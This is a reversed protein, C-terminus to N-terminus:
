PSTALKSEADRLRKRVDVERFEPKISQVADWLPVIEKWLTVAEDYKNQKEYENALYVLVGLLSVQSNALTEKDDPLYEKISDVMVREVAAFEEAAQFAKATDGSAVAAEYAKKYELRQEFPDQSEEQAVATGYNSFLLVLVTSIASCWASNLTM